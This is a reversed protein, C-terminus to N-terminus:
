ANEPRADQKREIKVIMYAFLAFFASMGLREMTPETMTWCALVFSMTLGLITLLRDTVVELALRVFKMLDVADM